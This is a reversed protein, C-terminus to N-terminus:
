TFCAPSTVKFAGRMNKRRGAPTQQTQKPTSRTRVLWAPCLPLRLGAALGRALAESQNYGRWLRRRWHLPVPVVLDAGLRELASAAHRAWLEGVLEALGEGSWSKLRLIVERLLGDYPGLRTAGSFFFRVNRCVPCGQSLDVFPGVTSSCRPCTPFPDTVLEQHCDDCFPPINPALKRGCLWCANPFLVHLLGQAVTRGFQVLQPLMPPDLKS